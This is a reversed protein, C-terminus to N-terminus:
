QQLLPQMVSLVGDTSPIMAGEPLLQRLYDNLDEVAEKAGEGNYEVFADVVETVLAMVKVQVDLTCPVGTKLILKLYLKVVDSGLDESAMLACLAAIATRRRRHFSRV